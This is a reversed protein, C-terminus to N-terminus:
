YRKGSKRKGKMRASNTFSSSAASRMSRTRRSSESSQQQQQQKDDGNARARRQADEQELQLHQEAYQEAEEARADRELAEHMRMSELEEAQELTSDRYRQQADYEHKAVRAASRNQADRQRRHLRVCPFRREFSYGPRRNNNDHKAPIGTKSGTRVLKAAEAAETELKQIRNFLSNGGNGGTKQSQAHMTTTTTSAKHKLDALRQTLYNLQTRRHTETRARADDRRADRGYEDTFESSSSEVRPTRRYQAHRKTNLIPHYEGQKGFHRVTAAAAPLSCKNHQANLRQIAQCTLTTSRLQHMPAINRMTCCQVLTRLSAFM